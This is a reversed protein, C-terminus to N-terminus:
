VPVREFVCDTSPDGLEDKLDFVQLPTIGDDDFITLTQAILDVRTRNSEFKVLLNLVALATVVNAAVTNDQLGFTGADTFDTIQQSWTDFASNRSSVRQFREFIPLSAGGDTRFLYEKTPDYTTFNYKYFGDGIEVMPDDIIILTSSSSTIEWIRITPSLGDTPTGNITFLSSIIKGM